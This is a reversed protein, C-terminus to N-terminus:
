PELGAMKYYLSLADDATFDSVETQYQSAAIIAETVGTPPGSPTPAKTSKKKKPSEVEVLYPSKHSPFIYYDPTPGDPYEDWHKKIAALAEEKTDFLQTSIPKQGWGRESEWWTIEWKAQTM